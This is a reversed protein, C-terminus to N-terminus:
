KAQQRFYTIWSKLNPPLDAFTADVEPAKPSGAKELEAGKAATTLTEGQWDSTTLGRTLAAYYYVRADKPKASALKKFVEDAEKYKGAKFLDVGGTLAAATEDAPPKSEAAPPPAPKHVEEKLKALDGKVSKLAGDVSGVQDGIKGVKENLPGVVAVSKALDELKGELSKIDPVPEPKPLDNLKGEFAKVQATLEDVKGTLDKVKGELAETNVTSVPTPPPAPTPETVPSPAPATTTAVAPAEKQMSMFWAAILMGVMLIGLVAPFASMKIEDDEIPVDEPPRYASPPGIAPPPPENMAPPPSGPLAHFDDAPLDGGPPAEGQPDEHGTQEFNDAM